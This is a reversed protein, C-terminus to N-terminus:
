DNDLIGGSPMIWMQRTHLFGVKGMALKQGAVVRTCVFHRAAAMAMGALLGKGRLAIQHFVLSNVGVGLPGVLTPFALLSKRLGRAKQEKVLSRVCGGALKRGKAAWIAGLCKRSLRIQRTVFACVGFLPTEPAGKTPFRERAAGMQDVVLSRVGALAGVGARKTPVSEHVSTPQRSVAAPFVQVPAVPALLAKHADGCKFFM